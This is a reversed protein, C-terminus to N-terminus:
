VCVCVVCLVCVCVCICDQSKLHPFLMTTYILGHSTHSSSLSAATCLTTNACVTVYHAVYDECFTLCKAAVDGSGKSSSIKNQYESYDNSTNTELCVCIVLM